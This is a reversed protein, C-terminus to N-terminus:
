RVGAYVGTTLGAADRVRAALAVHSADTIPELEHGSALTHLGEGQLSVLRQGSAELLLFAPHRALRPVRNASRTSEVLVVPPYGRRLLLMAFDSQAGILAVAMRGFDDVWPLAVIASHEFRHVTEPEIDDLAWLGIEADSASARRRVFAAATAGQSVELWTFDRGLVTTGGDLDVVSIETDAALLLASDDRNLFVVVGRPLERQRSDRHVWAIRNRFFVAASGGRYTIGDGCHREVHRNLLPQQPADLDIVVLQQQGEECPSLPWPPFFVKAVTLPDGSRITGLLQSPHSPPGSFPVVPLRHHLSRRVDVVELVLSDEEVEIGVHPAEWVTDNCERLRVSVPADLDPWPADLPAVRVEGNDCRGRVPPAIDVFRGAPPSVGAIATSAEAQFRDLSGGHVRRLGVVNDEHSAVLWAGDGTFAWAEVDPDLTVVEGTDARWLLDPAGDVTALLDGCRGIAIEDADLPLDVRGWPISPGCNVGTIDPDFPRVQDTCAVLCAWITLGAGFASKTGGGTTALVEMGLPPTKVPSTRWMDCGLRLRSWFMKVADLWPIKRTLRRGRGLSLSRGDRRRKDLESAIGVDDSCGLVGVFVVFICRRASSVM